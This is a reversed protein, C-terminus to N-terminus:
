LSFCKRVKLKSILSVFVKLFPDVNFSFLIKIPAFETKFSLSTSSESESADSYRTQYGTRSSVKIEGEATKLKQRFHTYKTSTLHTPRFRGLFLTTLNDSQGSM